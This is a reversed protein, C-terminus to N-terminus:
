EGTDILQLLDIGFEIRLKAGSPVPALDVNLKDGPKGIVEKAREVLDEDEQQLLTVLAAPKVKLSIPSAGAPAAAPKTWADLTKKLAALNGGGLSVWLSDNRIAVHAPEDGFHKENEEDQEVTIEHIRAGAHKAADVKIKALEPNDKSLKIVDDFLKSADDGQVLKTGGVIRVKGEGGDELVLGSHMAGSKATNQAIDFLRKAIGKAAAKDDDGDLNEDKDIQEDASKRMVAFMQNLQETIGTTPYSVVLRFPAADSGITGFAPALKGYATLSKALDTNSKGTIGFDMAALRTEENVDFGLTLKDGDNVISKIAAITLNVGVERGAKEAENEPPPGNELSDKASMEMQGLFAGKLESPIGAISVDLALDYKSNVIKAPDATKTLTTPDNSIFCYGGAVKAFLKTGQVTMTWQGKSEKFDPTLEGLLGKLDNADAVPIFAVPMEPAGVATANWYVGLPKTKDIGALGKGGTFGSILSEATTKVQEQGIEGGVFEADDLLPDIGRISLVVTPQQAQVAAGMMATMVVALGLIRWGANRIM